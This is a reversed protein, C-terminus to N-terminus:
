FHPKGVWGKGGEKIYLRATSEWFTISKKVKEKRRPWKTRSFKKKAKGGKAMNLKASASIAGAFRLWKHRFGLTTSYVITSLERRWDRVNVLGVKYLKKKLASQKAKGKHSRTISHGMGYRVGDKGGKWRPVLFV